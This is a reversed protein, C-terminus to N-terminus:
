GGAAEILEVVRKRLPRTLPLAALPMLGVIVPLSKGVRLRTREPKESRDHIWFLLLGIQYLWLLLPLHPELGAPVRTGELASRFYDVDQQRISRTEESFPSLPDASDASHRFLAGLFRHNPEFYAFKADLGGRLRHGLGKRILTQGVRPALDRQGQEYFAMVVAEKSAFYYYALGVAVGASPAIEPMTTQDFGGERLRELAAALIRARSRGSKAAARGAKMRLVGARRSTPHRPRGRNGMGFWSSIERRNRSIMGFAQRAIPLLLRSSLRFARDRYDRLAWLCLVWARSGIYVRGGDGTV